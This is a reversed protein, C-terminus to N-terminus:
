EDGKIVNLNAYEGFLEIAKINYAKAADIENTFYGLHFRKKNFNIYSIWKKNRYWSVGKYISSTSKKWKKANRNNESRTSSRLNEIKNNSRNNDIHDLMKPLTKNFYLYILRHTLYKEGNIGINYYGTHHLSGAKSGIKIHLNLSVKWYLFGDKYDFIEKLYKQTLEKM